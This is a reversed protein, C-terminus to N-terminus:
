FEPTQFDSIMNGTNDPEPSSRRWSQMTDEFAPANEAIEKIPATIGNM